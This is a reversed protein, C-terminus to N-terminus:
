PHVEINDAHEVAAVIPAKDDDPETSGDSKKRLSLGLVTTGSLAGIVTAFIGGMGTADHYVSAFHIFGVVLVATLGMGIGALIRAMSAKKEAVPDNIASAVFGIAIDLRRQLEDATAVVGRSAYRVIVLLVSAGIVLAALYAVIRM